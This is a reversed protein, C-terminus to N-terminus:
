MWYKQLLSASFMAIWIRISTERPTNAKTLRCINDSSERIQVLFTSFSGCSRRTPLLASIWGYANASLLAKLRQWVIQLTSLNWLTLLALVKEMLHITYGSKQKAPPQHHNENSGESEATVVDCWWRWWLWVCNHQNRNKHRRTKGDIAHCLNM